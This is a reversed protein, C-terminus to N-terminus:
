IKLEIGKLSKHIYEARKHPLDAQDVEEKFQSLLHARRCNFLLQNLQQNTVGTIWGFEAGLKLLSLANLAEIAELQYSHLLIAYARSVKDKVKPNGSEKIESRASKEDVQLKTIFAQLNAIINEETLGLTFTNQAVIIDGIVEKPSGQIGTISIGEDMYQQITTNIRDTHILGSLQLYILIKMATGSNTPDATLFGFRRSYSYSLKKGLETEIQVLNNWCGELDNDVDLLLLHIHDDMNLTAFFNGTDDIIFGEGSHAQQFSKLSLFHETLYEKDNPPLEQAKLLKPKKLGKAKTVEKNVLSIVQKQRSDDLKNPFKYKDLNRLFTISSGLWISHDNKDWPKPLVIETM